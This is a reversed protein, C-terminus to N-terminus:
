RYRLAYHKYVDLFIYMYNVSTRATEIEKAISLISPDRLLKQTSRFLKHSYQCYIRFRRVEM